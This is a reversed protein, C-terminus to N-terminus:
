KFFSGSQLRLETIGWVLSDVRNPSRGQGPIWTTMEDELLPVHGVHHVKGQEYLMQIPTARTQKGDSAWVTRYPVSIKMEAAAYRIVTGVMEGGQNTEGVIADGHHQKMANIAARSWQEPTGRLTHDALVFAHMQTEGKCNCPAKAVPIIGAEDSTEKSTAAPDVPILVTTFNPLPKDSPWRYKDILEHTWLAGDVNTLDEANLEQRGLTTGEYPKIVNEIYARSLNAINQYTTAKVVRTLPRAKIETWLKSPKPTTTICTRSEGKRLGFMLMDWTARQYKWSCFEDAWLAYLNPGRARNPEEGSFLKGKAGSPFIMEGMSRNFQLEPYLTKLGSEGEICYDRGDGFTAAAIGVYPYRKAQEWIWEAGALTKGSGRGGQLVWILWDHDTPPHQYDHLTKPPAAQIPNTIAEQWAEAAAQMLWDEDQPTSWIVSSNIQITDEASRKM